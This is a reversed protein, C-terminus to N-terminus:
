ASTIDGFYISRLGIQKLYLLNEHTLTVRYAVTINEANFYTSPAKTKIEEMRGFLNLTNLLQDIQQMFDHNRFALRVYFQQTLFGNTFGGFDILGSLWALKTEKSYHTPVFYKQKNTQLRIQDFFAYNHGDENCWAGHSYPKLFVDPDAMERKFQSKM